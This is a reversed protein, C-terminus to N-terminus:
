HVFEGPDEIKLRQWGGPTKATFYGRLPQKALLIQGSGVGPYGSTELVFGLRDSVKIFSEAGVGNPRDSTDDAFVYHVTIISALILVAVAVLKQM